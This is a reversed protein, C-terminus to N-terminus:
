PGEQYKMNMYWWGDCRSLTVAGWPRGLMLLWNCKLWLRSPLGRLGYPDHPPMPPFFLQCCKSTIHWSWTAGVKDGPLCGGSVLQISIKNTQLSLRSATAFVSTGSGVPFRVTTVCVTYRCLHIFLIKFHLNCGLVITSYLFYIYWLKYILRMNVKYSWLSLILLDIGDEGEAAWIIVAADLLWIKLV